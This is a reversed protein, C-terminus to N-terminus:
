RSRRLCSGFFGDMAHRHPQSKFCRDAAFGASYTEPLRAAANEMVFEPHSKLFAAAVSPGEEPETSCVAYILLGGPSVLPALRDLLSRQRASFRKLHSETMRWKNDPNRRLVGMGSCPADLLVRDFRERDRLGFSRHLDHQRGTVITVGLRRMQTTLQQIKDARIDVATIEGRNDMLQAIHGTKGGLGACADLIKEEPRPGLMVAILQAAEDQVQFWGARYADTEDLPKRLRTLQLGDPSFPTPQIQEAFPALAARLAERSTKLTNTRVTTPPVANVADCLAITDDIGWRRLWRRIIWEPFSKRISLAAVPDSAPDPYPLTQFEAAARRLIANVFRVVWVPRSSKVLEVATNVAASDPVRDLHVIQFVALRLLNLVSPDVKKLPTRSFSQIIYDLRARWRLVGFVLTQFLARDKLKFGSRQSQVDELVADLTRDQTALNDLTRWALRRVGLPDKHATDSPGAHLSAMM